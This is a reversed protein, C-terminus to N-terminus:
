LRSGPRRAASVWRQGGPQLAGARRTGQASSQEMVKASVWGQAAIDWPSLVPRLCRHGRPSCSHRSWVGLGVRPGLLRLHGSPRLSDWSGLPVASSLLRIASVRGRGSLRRAPRALRTRGWALRRPSGPRAQPHHRIAAPARPLAREGRPSSLTGLHSRGVPSRQDRNRLLRTVAIELYTTLGVTPSPPHRARGETLRGPEPDPEAPPLTQPWPQAHVPARPASM